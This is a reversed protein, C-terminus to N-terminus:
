NGAARTNLLFNLEGRVASVKEAKSMAALFDARAKFAPLSKRAKDMAMGIKPFATAPPTKNPPTSWFTSRERPRKRPPPRNKPPNGHNMSAQGKQSSPPEAKSPQSKSPASGNNNTNNKNGPVLSLPEAVTDGAIISHFLSQVHGYIEFIQPAGLDLESMFKITEVHMWVGCKSTKAPWSGFILLRKPYAQPYVGNEVVVQLTMDKSDVDTVKITLITENDNKTSTFESPFIAELAEMEEQLMELNDDRNDDGETATELTVGAIKQLEQWFADKPGVNQAQAQELVFKADPIRIGHNSAFTKVAPTINEDKDNRTAAVGSSNSTTNTAATAVIVDLTGGRPDFGEPLQDEDLHICLWQLCDEYLTEWQDEQVHASTSTKELATRVQRQTFGEHRLRELVYIQGDDLDDNTNADDDEEELDLLGPVSDSDMDGRLLNQIQQRLHAALFVPHHQNALRIAEHKRIRKNREIRKADIQKQRDAKSTYTKGLTLSTSAKAGSNGSGSGSNQTSNNNNNHNASPKQDGDVADEKAAKKKNTNDKAAQQKTNEMAHLWTTKYPEPLKREHPLSPTQSLLALICAEEQAQEENDVGKAPVFFLDKDAVDKPDPLIVRCLFKGPTKSINKFKPPRRKERQCYEKLLTSPLRQWQAIQTKGVQTTTAAQAIQATQGSAGKQKHGKGGWTQSEPDWRHGRSPREPRNGCECNYPHDCTCKKTAVPAAAGGKGKKPKAM